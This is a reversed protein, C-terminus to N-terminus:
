AHVYLNVLLVTFFRCYYLRKKNKHIEQIDNRFVKQLIYMVFLCMVSEFNSDKYFSLMLLDLYLIFNPYISIRFINM